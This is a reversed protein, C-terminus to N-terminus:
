SAAAVVSDDTTPEAVNIGFPALLPAVRMNAILQFQADQRLGDIAQLLTGEGKVVPALRDLLQEITLTSFVRPRMSKVVTTIYPLLGPLVSQLSNLSVVDNAHNNGNGNGNSAGHLLNGVFPVQEGTANLAAGLTMVQAMIQSVRGGDGILQLNMHPALAAMMAVRAENELRAIELTHAYELKMRELEVLAGNNAYLDALQQQAAIEIDRLGKQHALEAKNKAELVAAEALGQDRTVAVKQAAIKVEQEEVDARALGAAAESARKAKARELEAAAEKTAADATRNARLLAASTEAETKLRLAQAEAEAKTLQVLKARDAAAAEEEAKLLLQAKSADAARELEKTQVLALRQAEATAVALQNAQELTATKAEVEATREAQALDVAKDLTVQKMQVGHTTEAAEQSRTAQTLTLEHQRLALEEATNAEATKVDREAGLRERETVRRTEADVEAQTRAREQNSQDTALQALNIQITSDREVEAIAQTVLKQYAEGGLDGVKLLVLTYGLEQLTHKVSDFAREGLVQAKHLLDELAMGAAADILEAETVERITTALSEVDSGVSRAAIAARTEDLKAVVHASIIYPRRNSDLVKIGQGNIGNVSVLFTMTRLAIVSTLSNKRYIIGAPKQALQASTPDTSAEVGGGYVVIQRSARLSHLGAAAVVHIQDSPVVVKKGFGFLGSGKPPEVVLKTYTEEGQLREGFREIAEGARDALRDLM